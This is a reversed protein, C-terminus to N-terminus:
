KSSLSLLLLMYLDCLRWFFPIVPFDLSIVYHYIHLPFSLGIIYWQVTLTSLTAEISALLKKWILLSCSSNCRFLTNWILLSRIQNIQLALILFIVPHFANKNKIYNSLFTYEHFAFLMNKILIDYHMLNSLKQILNRFFNKENSRWFGWWPTLSWFIKKEIKIM